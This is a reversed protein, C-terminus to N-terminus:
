SLKKYKLSCQEDSIRVNIVQMVFNINIFEFFFRFWVYCFNPSCVKEDKSMEDIVRSPWTMKFDSREAKYTTHLNCNVFDSSM